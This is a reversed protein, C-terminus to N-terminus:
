WVKAATMAQMKSNSHWELSLNGLIFTMSKQATERNIQVKTSTLLKRKLPTHQIIIISNDKRCM